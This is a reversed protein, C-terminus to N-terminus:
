VEELVGNRWLHAVSQTVVLCGCVRWLAYRTYPVEVPVV